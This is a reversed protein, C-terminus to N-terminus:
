PYPLYCFVACRDVVFHGRCSPSRQVRHGAVAVRRDLSSVARGRLPDACVGACQGTGDGVHETLDAGICRDFPTHLVFVVALVFPFTLLLWDSNRTMPNPAHVFFWDLICWFVLGAVAGGAVILWFRGATSIRKTQPTAYDLNPM